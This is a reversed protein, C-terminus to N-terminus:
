LAELMCRQRDFYTTNHSTTQIVNVQQQAKINKKNQKEEINKKTKKQIKDYTFFKRRSFLLLM